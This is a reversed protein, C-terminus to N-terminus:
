KKIILAADNREVSRLFNLLQRKEEETESENYENDTLIITFIWWKQEYSNVTKVM